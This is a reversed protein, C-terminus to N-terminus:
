IDPETSPPSEFVGEKDLAERSVEPQSTDDLADLIQQALRRTGADSREDLLAEALGRARAINM